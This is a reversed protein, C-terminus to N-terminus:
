CSRLVEMLRQLDMVQFGCPVIVKVGNPLLLQFESSQNLMMSLEMFGNPRDANKVKQSTKDYRRRYYCFSPYSLHHDKCYREGSLGSTKWLRLQEDWYDRKSQNSQKM